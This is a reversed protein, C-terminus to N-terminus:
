IKRFQMAGMFGAGATGSGIQTCKFAVIDGVAFDETGDTKLTGASFTTSGAAYQPKTSYVTTGNKTVDLILAQGTAATDLDEASLGLFETAEGVVFEAYTQVAIDEAAWTADYGAFVPFHSDEHAVPVAARLDDLDQNTIETTSTTLSIRAIPLKDAPIAPDSPSAAEAGTAVGVAGTKRDIYVIDNRPNVSPATITGTSQAAVETLAATNLNIIRGAELRVTMGPTSEEHPAFQEGIELAVAAASDLATKYATGSQTEYDPKTTSTGVAM